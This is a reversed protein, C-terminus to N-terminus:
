KKPSLVIMEGERKDVGKEELIGKGRLVLNMKWDGGRGWIIYALHGYSELWCIKFPPHVLNSTSFLIDYGKRYYPFLRDSFIKKLKPNFM